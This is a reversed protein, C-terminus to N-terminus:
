SAIALMSCAHTRAQLASYNVSSLLILTLLWPDDVMYISNPIQSALEFSRRRRLLVLRPDADDSTM